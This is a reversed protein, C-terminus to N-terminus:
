QFELFFHIYSQDGLIGDPNSCRTLELESNAIGGSHDSRM